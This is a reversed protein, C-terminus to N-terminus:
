QKAPFIQNAIINGAGPITQQLIDKALPKINHKGTKTSKTVLNITDQGARVAAGATPGMLALALRDGNAATIFGHLTGWSGFYSLMDLYESSFEGVDQPNTLKEYDQQAGGIARSPSATRAFVEAAKLMPAITPFMLGVTGAFRAIGVYDGSDLMKQMERRMFRQQFTVYGHFMTLMRGWPTATANLSRDLPRSVFIRNNVFHWIAKVKEDKTLQGGRKVIAQPDLGLEKLELLSRKDGHAANEAWYLASHYGVAASFNIQVKREFNFLPNHFMQGWLAGVEPKGTKTALMGTRASMDDLLMHFTQSGLVGAADSLQRVEKDSYSAMGKYIAELPAQSNNFFTSIHNVAIMPALYWRVRQSSVKELANMRQFVNGTDIKANIPMKGDAELQKNMAILTKQMDLKTGSHPVMSPRVGASDLIMPYTTDHFQNAAISLIADAHAASAADGNLYLPLVAKVLNNSDPGIVQQRALLRAQGGLKITYEQLTMAANKPDLNIINATHAQAPHGQQALDSHVKGLTARMQDPNNKIVDHIQQPSKELQTLIQNRVRDTEQLLAGARQGEPSRALESEQSFFTTHAQSGIETKRLNDGIWKGSDRALKGLFEAPGAGM